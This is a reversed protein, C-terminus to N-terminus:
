NFQPYQALISQLVGVEDPGLLWLVETSSSFLCAREGAALWCQGDGMAVESDAFRQALHSQLASTLQLAEAEGDMVWHVVMGPAQDSTRTYAQFSDGGWGAAAALATGNAIQADSNAGDALLLYTLWEGLTGQEQLTWGSGIAATLPPDNIPIADEGAFFKEPHLIHESSQPPNAYTLDVQAWDGVRFIERVFALGEDQVFELDRLAFDPATEAGVLMPSASNPSSGALLQDAAFAADGTVFALAARCADSLPLCSGQIGLAALDFNQAILAHAVEQSYVFPLPASFDTGVLLINNSAPLFFGGLPNAHSSLEYEALSGGAPLLGLMTLAAQQKQLETQREANLYTNRLIAAADEVGVIGSQWPTSAQLGRLATVEGDIALMEQQVAIDLLPLQFAFETPEPTIQVQPTPTTEIGPTWTPPLTRFAQPETATSSALQGPAVINFYDLSFFAAVSLAIIILVLLVTRLNNRKRPAPEDLHLSADDQLDAFAARDESPIGRVPSPFIQEEPLVLPRTVPKSQTTKPGDPRPVPNLKQPLDVPEGRLKQLRIRARDFHPDARLSQMLAYQKRQPDEVAHSLLFWGPASNPQERLFVVLLKQAEDRKGAKILASVKKLQQEQEKADM